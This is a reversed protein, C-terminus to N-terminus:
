RSLYWTSTSPLVEGSVKDRVKSNDPVYSVFLWETADDLKVLVYAPENDQLITALQPLDDTLSGSTPWTGGSTLSEANLLGDIM